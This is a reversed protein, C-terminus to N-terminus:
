MRLPLPVASALNNTASISVCWCASPLTKIGFGKCAYKFVSRMEAQGNCNVIHSKSNVRNKERPAFISFSLNMLIKSALLSTCGKELVPPNASM